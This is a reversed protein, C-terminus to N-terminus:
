FTWCQWAIHVMTINKCVKHSTEDLLPRCYIKDLNEWGILILYNVHFYLIVNYNVAIEYKYSTRSYGCLDHCQQESHLFVRSRFQWSFLVNQLNMEFRLIMERLCLAIRRCIQGLKMASQNENSPDKKVNEWRIELTKSGLMVSSIQTTSIYLARPYFVCLSNSLFWIVDCFM